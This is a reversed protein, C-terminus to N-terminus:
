DDGGFYRSILDCFGNETYIGFDPFMERLENYVEPYTDLERKCEDLTGCFFRQIESPSGIVCLEKM